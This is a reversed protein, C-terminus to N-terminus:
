PLTRRVFYAVNGVMRACAECTSTHRETQARACHLAHSAGVGWGEEQHDESMLSARILRFSNFFTLACRSLRAPPLLLSGFRQFVDLFVSPM